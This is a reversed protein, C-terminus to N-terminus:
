WATSTAGQQGPKAALPRGASQWGDIGGRLYRAKLGAARLRMATARGVEHGYVCYVVVERDAPLEGAWRAVAAPDQWRAGPIMSAAQEFVGARRVDLLLAGAIEDQDAGFAESVAHVAEQYRQYAPNWDIGAV